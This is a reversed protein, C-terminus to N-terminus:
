MSDIRWVGDSGKVMNVIYIKNVGNEARLITYTAADGNGTSMKEANTLESAINAAYPKLVSLMSQYKTGAQGTFNNLTATTNGQSIRSFLNTIVPKMAADQQTETSIIIIQKTTYLVKPPKEANVVKFSVPWVKANSYNSFDMTLLLSKSTVPLTSDVTGDDNSDIQISSAALGSTNQYEFEILGNPQVDFVRDATIKFGPSGTSTVAVSTTQTQGDQSVLRATIINNGLTLPINNAYYTYTDGAGRTLTALVGNVSVGTNPPATFSGTVLLHDDNVISNNISADISFTVPNVTVTVPPSTITAGTNDTLIATISYAGAAVNSWATGYPPLTSEGLLIAGKYFGVKTITRTSNTTNVTAGLSVIAPAYFM